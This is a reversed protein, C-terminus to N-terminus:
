RKRWLTSAHQVDSSCCLHVLFRRYQLLELGATADRALIPGSELGPLFFGTVPEHVGIQFFWGEALFRELLAASKRGTIERDLGRKAEFDVPQARCIDPTPRAPITKESPLFTYTSSVIFGLEAYVPEGLKTAVLVQSICDQNRFYKV